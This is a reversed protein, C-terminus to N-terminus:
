DRTFGGNVLYNDLRQALTEGGLADWSSLRNVFYFWRTQQATSDFILAFRLAQPKEREGEGLAGPPSGAPPLPALPALADLEDDTFGTYKLDLDEAQLARLTSGLAQTDWEALEASRNDAIAYATAESGALDSWVVNLHRWNLDKAALYTGNGARIIGDRDVVVPHQQGFRVLSAAIANINRNPHLRLNAPDPSLLEIAVTEIIM